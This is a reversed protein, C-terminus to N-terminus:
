GAPSSTPRETTAAPVDVSSPCGSRPAGRRRRRRRHDVRLASSAPRRRREGLVLGQERDAVGLVAVGAVGVDAHHAHGVPARDGLLGVAGALAEGREANAGTAPSWRSSSAARAGRGRPAASRPRRRRCRSRSRVEVQGALHGGVEDGSAVNRSTQCVCAARVRSSGSRGRRGARQGLQRHRRAADARRLDARVAGDLVRARRGRSGSSRHARQVRVAGVAHEDRRGALARRARHGDLVEHAPSTCASTAAAPRRGGAGRHEAQVAARVGGVLVAEARGARGPDVRAEGHDLDVVAARRAVARGPAVRDLAAGPEGLQLVDGRHEVAADGVPM